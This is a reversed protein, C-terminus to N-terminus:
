CMPLAPKESCGHVASCLAVGQGHKGASARLTAQTFRVLEM